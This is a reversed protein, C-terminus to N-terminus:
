DSTPRNWDYRQVVTATFYPVSVALDTVKDFKAAAAVFFFLQCAVTYCDFGTV